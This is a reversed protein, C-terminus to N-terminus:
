LATGLLLTPSPLNDMLFVVVALLLLCIVSIPNRRSNFFKDSIIGALLVSLPAGLEFLASLAGSQVMNTGLKENLYKPGWFLFAYRTPKMFFYVAGLLLVMPNTLVQGIAKWSGEPPPAAREEQGIAAEPEGHYKEILPLGVEEPRNHHLFYFLI